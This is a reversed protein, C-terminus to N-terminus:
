KELSPRANSLMDAFGQDGKCLESSLSYTVRTGDSTAYAVRAEQSGPGQIEWDSNKRILKMQSRNRWWQNVENPRAIWVNRESRLRSVHDLLNTYTVRARKEIIYDPHIIFSALGNGELILEIQRRWLDISYQGLLHFLMYDQTTTLPIELISGIYYPMVTCCGGPQPDLHGVNPVSMDYSFRLADYWNTNRYLAGSRFGEAGYLEACENIKAARELFVDRDSFLLGDHNWDHINIEFGRIRIENLLEKPASYRGEPIIQFSSKIRYLDNLDMLPSCFDLGIRTEVDHTIVVCGSQGKPWFWIFPVRSVQRAKMALSMLNEHVRDVTRDVPWSPFVKKEWGNLAFRKFRSRLSLPLAPRALYYASKGLRRFRSYVQGGSYREQRLNNVVEDCDFPMLCESNRMQVHEFLDDLQSGPVASLLGSCSRGFCTTNHGFRFYGPKESLGRLPELAPFDPACRYYDILATKM